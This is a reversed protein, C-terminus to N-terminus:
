AAPPTGPRCEATVDQPDGDSSMHVTGTRGGVLAQFTDVHVQATHLFGITRM